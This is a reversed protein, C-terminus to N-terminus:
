ESTNLPEYAFLEFCITGIHPATCCGAHIDYVYKGHNLICLIHVVNLVCLVCQIKQNEPHAGLTFLNPSFVFCQEYFQFIPSFYPERTVYMEQKQWNWCKCGCWISNEKRDRKIMKTERIQHNHQHKRCIALTFLRVLFFLVFFKCCM